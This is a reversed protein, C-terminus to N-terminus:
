CCKKRAALKSDLNQVTSETKIENDVLSRSLIKMIQYIGYGTKSSSKLYNGNYKDALMIGEEDSIRSGLDTVPSLMIQSM